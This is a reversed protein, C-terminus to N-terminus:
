FVGVYVEDEQDVKYVALAKDLNESARAVQEENTALQKMLPEIIKLRKRLERQVEFETRGRHGRYLAQIKTAMEHELRRRAMTGRLAKVIGRAAYGRFCQQIRVVALAEHRRLEVLHFVLLALHREKLGRWRSQIKTAANRFRRIKRQDRCRSANVRGARGRVIAQVKKAKDHTDQIRAREALLANRVRRGARGRALRQITKASAIELQQHKVQAQLYLRQLTAANRGLKGRYARHTPTSIHTIIFTHIYTHIHSYMHIYM